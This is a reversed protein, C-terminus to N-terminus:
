WMGWYVLRSFPCVSLFDFTGTDPHPWLFLDLAKLLSVKKGKTKNLIKLKIVVTTMDKNKSKIEKGKKTSCDM